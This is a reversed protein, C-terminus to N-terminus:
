CTGAKQETRRTPTPTEPVSTKPTQGVTITASGAGAQGEVVVDMYLQTGLELGVAEWARFHNGTNITGGVHM